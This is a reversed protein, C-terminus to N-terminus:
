LQVDVAIEITAIQDITATANARTQVIIAYETNASVTVWGTASPDTWTAGNSTYNLSVTTTTNLTFSIFEFNAADGTRSVHRLRVTFSTSTHNNRVRLPDDYSMTMNPYAKLTSLTASKNNNFISTGATSADAGSVFYVNDATATTITSTMSLSYYVLASASAILMSSLLLTLFKMSKSSLIKKVQM